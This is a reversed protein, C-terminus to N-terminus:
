NIMAHKAPCEGYDSQFGTWLEDMLDAVTKSRFPLMEIIIGKRISSKMNQHEAMEM